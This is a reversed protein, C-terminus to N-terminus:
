AGFRLRWDGIQGRGIQRPLLLPVDVPRQMLEDSLIAARNAANGELMIRRRRATKVRAAVNCQRALAAKVPEGFDEAQPM